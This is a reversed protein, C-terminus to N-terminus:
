PMSSIREFNHWDDEVEPGPAFYSRCAGPDRLWRSVTRTSLSTPRSRPATTTPAVAANRHHKREREPRPHPSLTVRALVAADLDEIQRDRGTGHADHEVHKYADDDDESHTEDTEHEVSARDIVSWRQDCGLRKRASTPARGAVRVATARIVLEGERACFSPGRDLVLRALVPTRHTSLWSCMHASIARRPHEDRSTRTRATQVPM